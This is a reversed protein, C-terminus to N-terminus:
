QHPDNFLHPLLRPSPVAILPLVKLLTLGFKETMDLNEPTIGDPLSWNFAHLLSATVLHVMRHALPLGPCIRRGAGFPILEFNQGKYEIESEM